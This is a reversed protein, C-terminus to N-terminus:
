CENYCQKYRQNSLNHVQRSHCKACCINFYKNVVSVFICFISFANGSLKYGILIQGGIMTFNLKPNGMLFCLVLSICLLQM